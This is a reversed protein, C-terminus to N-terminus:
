KNSSLKNIKIFFEKTFKYLYRCYQINLCIYGSNDDFMNNIKLYEILKPKADILEENEFSDILIGPGVRSYDIEFGMGNHVITNRLLSILYIEDWIQDEIKNSFKNSLFDRARTIISGKCKEKSLNCFKVLGRELCSYIMIVFTGYFINDYGKIYGMYDSITEIPTWPSQKYEELTLGSSNLSSRAIIEGDSIENPIKESRRFKGIEENLKNQLDQNFKELNKYSFDLYSSLLGIEEFIGGIESYPSVM